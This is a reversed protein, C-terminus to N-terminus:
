KNIVHQPNINVQQATPININISLPTATNPVDVKLENNQKLVSVKNETKKSKFLGSRIQTVLEEFYRCQNIVEERPCADQIMQVLKLQDAATDYLNVIREIATHSFNGTVTIWAESYSKWNRHEAEIDDSNLFVKVLNPVDHDREEKRFVTPLAEVPCTFVPFREPVAIGQAKIDEISKYAFGKFDSNKIYPVIQALFCEENFTLVPKLSLLVWVVCYVIQTAPLSKLQTETDRLYRNEIDVGPTADFSVRVAQYYIENFLSVMSEEIQHQPMLSLFQKYLYRNLPSDNLFDTMDSHGCFLLLRNLESANM